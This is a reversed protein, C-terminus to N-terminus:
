FHRKQQRLVKSFWEADAKEAGSHYQLIQRVPIGHNKAHTSSAAFFRHWKAGDAATAAAALQLLVTGFLSHLLAPHSEVPKRKQLLGYLGESAFIQIKIEDM